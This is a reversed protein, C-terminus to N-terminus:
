RESRTLHKQMRLFNIQKHTQKHTEKEKKKKEKLFIHDLKKTFPGNKSFQLELVHPKVPRTELCLTM